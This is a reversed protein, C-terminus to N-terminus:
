ATGPGVRRVDEPPRTRVRAVRPQPPGPTMSSTAWCQRQQRIPPSYSTPMCASRRPPTPTDWGAPCPEFTSARRLCDPLPSTVSTTSGCASSARRPASAPSRGRSGTRSGHRWRLRARRLVRLGRRVLPDRVACCAGGDGDQASRAPRRHRRRDRTAPGAHTKTDKEIVERGVQVASREVLVQAGVLDVASWRLAILEGRRAGTVAAVHLFLGLDPQRSEKAAEILRIVDEPSPPKLSTRRVAAPRARDAVNPGVWDWRVAQSLASSVVAHVQRVTAPRLGEDSLAVTSATSTSRGFSPSAQGESAPSSGAPLSTASVGGLTSPSLSGGVNKSGAIRCLEALTAATTSPRGRGVEVVLESLAKEAERKTGRFARFVSAADPSRIVVRRSRWSGM